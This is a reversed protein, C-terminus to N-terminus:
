KEGTFSCQACVGYLVTQSNDITFGHDSMIHNSVKNMLECNLHIFIGCNSCKLHLHSKCDEKDEVLCFSATKGEETFKRVKGENQMKTIYRYITSKGVPTGKRKLQEEIEECTFPAHSFSLLLDSILQKQKTRYTNGNM